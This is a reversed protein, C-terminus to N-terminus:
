FVQEPKKKEDWYCSDTDDANNEEDPTFVFSIFICM